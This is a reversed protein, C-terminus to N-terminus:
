FGKLLVTRVAPRGAADATALTMANPEIVQTEIAERMWHDFQAFPNADLDALDLARAAYNRRMEALQLTTTM